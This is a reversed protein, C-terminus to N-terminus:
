TSARRVLRGPLCNRFAQWWWLSLSVLLIPVISAVEGLGAWEPPIDFDVAVGAALLISVTFYIVCWGLGAFLHLRTISAIDRALLIASPVDFTCLVISASGAAIESGHGAAVAFSVSATSLALGDNTGDGVFATKGYQQILRSVEDAKMSPSLGGVAEAGLFAGFSRVALINDGSLIMTYKSEAQLTRILDSAGSRPSDVMGYGGILRNGMTILFVSQGARLMERVRPHKETATFDANGALVPYGYLEAQIGSGPITVVDKLISQTSVAGGTEEIHRKVAISIPHLSASTLELALATVLPSTHLTKSISFNGQSLTGTKDFAFAAIDPVDYLIPLSRFVIKNKLGVSFGISSVLSVQSKTLPYELADSRTERHSATCLPLGSGLRRHLTELWQHM